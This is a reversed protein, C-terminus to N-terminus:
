LVERGILLMRENVTHIHVTPLECMPAQSLSTWGGSAAQPWRLWLSSPEPALHAVSEDAAVAPLTSSADPMVHQSRTLAAAQMPISRSMRSRVRSAQEPPEYRWRQCKAPLDHGVSPTRGTQRPM